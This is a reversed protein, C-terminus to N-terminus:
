NCRGARSTWLRAGKVCARCATSHGRCGGVRVQQWLVVGLRRLLRGARQLHEGSFHYTAGDEEITM